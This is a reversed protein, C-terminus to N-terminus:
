EASEQGAACSNILNMITEVANNLHSNEMAEIYKRRGDYTSHILDLLVRDTMQEEELVASFGQEAFSRANLIQDGRSTGKPLPITICKKGLAAAESLTNSGARCVVCDARKLLSPYNDAYKYQYYNSGSVSFDGNNGSIHIINYKKLLEPLASYIVKNIATSGTSGGCILLTRKKSDLM